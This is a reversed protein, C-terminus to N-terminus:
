SSMFYLILYVTFTPDKFRKIIWFEQMFHMTWIFIIWSKYIVWDKPFLPFLKICWVFDEFFTQVIWSMYKLFTKKLKLWWNEPDVLGTEHGSIRAQTLSRARVPRLGPGPVHLLRRELQIPVGNLLLLFIFISWDDVWFGGDSNSIWWSSFWRNEKLSRLLITYVFITEM